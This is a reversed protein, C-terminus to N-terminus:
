GYRRMPRSDQCYFITSVFVPVHRSAIGLRQTVLPDSMPLFSSTTDDKLAVNFDLVANTDGVGYNYAIWSNDSASRQLIQQYLEFQPEFCHIAGAFGSERM